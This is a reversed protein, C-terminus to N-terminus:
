GQGDKKRGIGFLVNGIRKLRYANAGLFFIIAGFFLQTLGKGWDHIFGNWDM